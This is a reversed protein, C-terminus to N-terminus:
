SAEKESLSGFGTQKELIKDVLERLAKQSGWGELAHARSELTCSGAICSLPTKNDMPGFVKGHFDFVFRM